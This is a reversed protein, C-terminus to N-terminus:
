SVKRGVVKWGFCNKRRVEGTHYAGREKERDLIWEVIIQSDTSSQISLRPPLPPLALKDFTLWTSLPSQGVDSHVSIAISLPSSLNATINLLSTLPSDFYVERTFLGSIPGKSTSIKATVGLLAAGHLNPLTWQLLAWSNTVEQLTPIAPQDPAQACVWFNTTSMEGLGAPSVAAVRFFLRQQSRSLGGLTGDTCNVVYYDSRTTYTTFHTFHADVWSVDLSYHLLEDNDIGPLWTWSVSVTDDDSGDVRMM